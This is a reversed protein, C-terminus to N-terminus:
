GTSALSIGDGFFADNPITEPFTRRLREIYKAFYNFSEVDVSKIHCLWGFLSNATRYREPLDGFKFYRYFVGRMEHKKENGIRFSPSSGSKILGTIKARRRPGVFKTKRENVVFHETNIIKKIRPFAKRLSTPNNTSFTLDDAYRTYVINRKSTYGGLRRDLQSAILNSIAPSTVAGQPLNKEVTCLAALINSARNNYGMLSFIRKVRNETISPFFDEMDLLLFYRNNIHPTTNDLINSGSKYATAYETPEFKDLINRLIWAQIAKLKKNPFQIKRKSGDRKPIYFVKYFAKSFKIADNLLKAELHLIEAFERVGGFFPLGLLRILQKNDAV